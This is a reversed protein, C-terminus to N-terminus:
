PKEPEQARRRANIRRNEDPDRMWRRVSLECGSMMAIGNALGTHTARGSCGCHCKLRPRVSKWIKRKHIYANAWM